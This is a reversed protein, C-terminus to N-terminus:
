SMFVWISYSISSVQMAQTAAGKLLNDITAVLVVRGDADKGQATHVPGQQFGGIEVHHKNMIDKVVPIGDQSVGEKEDLVRVLPEKEYMQEYMGRLEEGRMSQSLCVNITLSIGRFFSAVHPSFHVGQFSPEVSALHRSVEREHIHQVLTYPLLNDKLVDVDNKVSPKTGAGSYGSVGMVVPSTGPAILNQAILPYLALQMGTAYCGPNSIRRASRIRDRSNYLEPLGYTWDNTFRYDASLDVMVPPTGSTNGIADVWPGCVKNPLALIWCDVDRKAATDQPSLNSYILKQNSKPLKLEQGQLERSSIYALELHSHGDILNILENGTYGRAGILGIRKTSYYRRNSAYTSTSTNFRARATQTTSYYRRGVPLKLRTMSTNVTELNDFGYWFVTKDGFTSSGDSKEFYWSRADDKRDVIWMLQENSKRIENWLSETVNNLEATRTSVFKELVPLGHEHNVVAITEYAEDGFM